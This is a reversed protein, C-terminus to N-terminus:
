APVLERERVPSSEEETAAPEFAPIVVFAILAGVLAVGAAAAAALHM